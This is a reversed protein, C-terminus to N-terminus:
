RENSRSTTALSNLSYNGIKDYVGLNYRHNAYNIHAQWKGQRNCYIGIFGTTNRSIRETNTSNQRPSALRLNCIRNDLRDGNAHDIQEPPWVGYVYFWALRHALYDKSDIVMAWYGRSHKTGAVGGVKTRIATRIKWIFIGTDPNYSLLDRLREVTLPGEPAKAFLRHHRKLHHEAM